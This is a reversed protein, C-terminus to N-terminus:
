LYNKHGFPRIESNKFVMLALSAAGPGELELAANTADLM